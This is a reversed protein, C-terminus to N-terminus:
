KKSSKKTGATALPGKRSAQAKLEELKKQEEKPKQRFAKDEEAVEKAQKNPQKLPQKKSSKRGSM